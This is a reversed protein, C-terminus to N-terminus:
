GNNATQERKKEKWHPKERGEPTKLRTKGAGVGLGKKKEGGLFLWKKVGPGKGGERCWFGRGCTLRQAYKKKYRKKRASKGGKSCTERGKKKFFFDAKKSVLRHGRRERAEGGEKGGWVVRSKEKKGRV